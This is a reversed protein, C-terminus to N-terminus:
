RNREVVRGTSRTNRKATDRETSLRARQGARDFARARDRDAAAEIGIAEGYAANAIVTAGTHADNDRRGIMRGRDIHIACQGKGAARAAERPRSTERWGT